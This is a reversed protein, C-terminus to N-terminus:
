KIFTKQNNDLKLLLNLNLLISQSSCPDRVHQRM